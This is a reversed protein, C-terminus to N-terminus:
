LGLIIPPRAHARESLRRQLTLLDQVILAQAKPNAGKGAQRRSLAQRSARRSTLARDTQKNSQYALALHYYVDPRKPLKAAAVELEGVAQDFRRLALFALGRQHRAEATEPHDELLQDLRVIAQEPLGQAVQLTAIRLMSAQDTPDVELSRFYAALAEGPRSLRELAVGQGRYARAQRPDVEVASEFHEIAESPRGNALEIEGLDIIASVYEPDIAIARRFSEVAADTQGLGREVVGLRYHVEASRPTQAGLEVLLEKAREWERKSIADNAANNLEDRFTQIEASPAKRPNIFTREGCGELLLIMGLCAIVAKRRVM